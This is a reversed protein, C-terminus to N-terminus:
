LPWIELFQFELICSKRCEALTTPSSIMRELWWGDELILQSRKQFESFKYTWASCIVLNLSEFWCSPLWRLDMTAWIMEKELRLNAPDWPQVIEFIQHGWRAQFLPQPFVQICHRQISWISEVHKLFSTALGDSSSVAQILVIVHHIDNSCHQLLCKTLVIGWSPCYLSKEIDLQM